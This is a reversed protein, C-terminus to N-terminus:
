GQGREFGRFGIVGFDPGRACNEGQDPEGVFGSGDGGCAEVKDTNGFSFARRQFRKVGNIGPVAGRPGFEARGYRM